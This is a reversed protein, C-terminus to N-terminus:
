PFLVQDRHIGGANPHDYHAVLSQVRTGGSLTMVMAYPQGDPSMGRSMAVDTIIMKSNCYERTRHDADPTHGVIVRSVQLNKMLYELRVCERDAEVGVSEPIKRVFLPGDNDNALDTARLLNSAFEARKIENLFAVLSEWDRARGSERLFENAWFLDVGAHVFLTDPSSPDIQYEETKMPGGIRAMILDNEIIYNILPGGPSFLVRADSASIDTPDRNYRLDLGGPMSPNYIMLDHNGALQILKWGLAAEISALIKYSYLSQSGRDMIDGLQVIAVRNGLASLPAPLPNVTPAGAPFVVSDALLRFQRFFRIKSLGHGSPEVKRFTLWLSYLFYEADGHVDPIVVVHSFQSVDFHGLGIPLNSAERTVTASDYLLGQSRLYEELEADTGAFYDGARARSTSAPVTTTTSTTRQTAVPASPLPQRIRAQAEGCLVPYTNICDGAGTFVCINSRDPGTWFLSQCDHGGKCWSGKSCGAKSLQAICFDQCADASVTSIGSLTILVSSLIRM